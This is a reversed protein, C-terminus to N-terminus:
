FRVGQVSYAGDGATDAGSVTRGMFHEAILKHAEGVAKLAKEKELTKRFLGLQESVLSLRSRWDGADLAKKMAADILSEAAAYDNNAYLADLQKVLDPVDIVSATRGSDPIGIYVSNDFPCPTEQDM